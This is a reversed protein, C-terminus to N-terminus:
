IKSIGCSTSYNAEIKKYCNFYCGLIVNIRGGHKTAERVGDCKNTACNHTRDSHELLFMFLCVKSKGYDVAKRAANYHISESNNYEKNAFCDGSLSM